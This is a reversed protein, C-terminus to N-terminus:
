SEVVSYGLARLLGVELILFPRAASVVHAIARLRDIHGSFLGLTLVGRHHDSALYKATNWINSEGARVMVGTMDLPAIPVQEAEAEM